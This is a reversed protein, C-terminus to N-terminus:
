VLFDTIVPELRAFPSCFHHFVITVRLLRSDTPLDMKQSQVVASCEQLFVAQCFQAEAPSKHKAIGETLFVTSVTISDPVSLAHVEYV